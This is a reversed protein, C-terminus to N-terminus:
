ICTGSTALKEVCLEIFMTVMNMDCIIQLKFCMISLSSISTFTISDMSTDVLQRSISSSTTLHFQSGCTYGKYEGKNQEM